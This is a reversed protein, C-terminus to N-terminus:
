SLIFDLFKLKIITQKKKTFLFSIFGFYEQNYIIKGLNTKSKRHRSSLLSMM